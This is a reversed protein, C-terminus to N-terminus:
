IRFILIQLVIHCDVVYKVYAYVYVYALLLCFDYLIISIINAIYPLAFRSM